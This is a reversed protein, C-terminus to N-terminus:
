KNETRLAEWLFHSIISFDAKRKFAMQMFFVRRTQGMIGMETTPFSLAWPHSLVQRRSCNCGSETALQLLHLFLVVEMQSNFFIFTGILRSEEFSSFSPVATIKPRNDQYPAVRNPAAQLKGFPFFFFIQKLLM